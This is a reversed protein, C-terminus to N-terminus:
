KYIEVRPTIALIEWDVKPVSGKQLLHSINEMFKKSNARNIDFFTDSGRVFHTHLNVQTFTYGIM